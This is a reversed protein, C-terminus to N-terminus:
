SEGASPSAGLIHEVAVRAFHHFPVISAHVWVTPTNADCMAQAVEAVLEPTPRMVPAPKGPQGWQAVAAEYGHNYAVTFANEYAAKLMPTLHPMEDGYGNGHMTGMIAGHAEAVALEFHEPDLKHLDRSM